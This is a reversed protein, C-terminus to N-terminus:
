KKEIKTQKNKLKVVKDAKRADELQRMGKAPSAPADHDTEALEEHIADIQKTLNAATEASKRLRVGPGGGNEAVFIVGAAELAAIVAAVNNTLGSATGESGEMRRLTAVSIRARKALEDQGIGALVRAAAIQRGTTQNIESM